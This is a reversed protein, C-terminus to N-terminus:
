FNDIDERDERDLSMWTSVKRFTYISMRTLNHVAALLSHRDRLFLYHSAVQLEELHCHWGFWHWLAGLLGSLLLRQIASLLAFDCVCENFTLPKHYNYMKLFLRM